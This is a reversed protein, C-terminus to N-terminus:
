TLFQSFLGGPLLAGFREMKIRGHVEEHWQYGICQLWGVRRKKIHFWQNVVRIINWELLYYSTIQLGSCVHLWIYMDVCQTHLCVGYVCVLPLPSRILHLCHSTYLPAPGWAAVAFLEDRGILHRMLAPAAMFRHTWLRCQQTRPWCDAVDGAPIQQRQLHLSPWRVVALAASAQRGATHDEGLTCTVSGCAEPISTIYHQFLM